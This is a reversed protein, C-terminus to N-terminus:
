NAENKGLGRIYKMTTATVRGARVPPSFDKAQPKLQAGCIPCAPGFGHVIELSGCAPCPATRTATDLLERM